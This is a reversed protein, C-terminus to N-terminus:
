VDVEGPIEQPFPPILSVYLFGSLFLSVVTPSPSNLLPSPITPPVSPLLFTPCPSDTAGVKEGKRKEPSLAAHLAPPFRSLPSLFLCGGHFVNAYSSNEPRTLEHILTTTFKHFSERSFPLSRVVGGVGWNEQFTSELGLRKVRARLAKPKQQMSDCNLTALQQM